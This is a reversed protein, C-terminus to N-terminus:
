KNTPLRIVKVDNPKWTPPSKIGADDVKVSQDM